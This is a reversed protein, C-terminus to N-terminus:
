SSVPKKNHARGIICGLGFPGQWFRSTLLCASSDGTLAIGALRQPSQVFLRYAGVIGVVAVGGWVRALSM